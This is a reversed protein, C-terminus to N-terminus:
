APRAAPRRALELVVDDYVAQMDRAVADATRPAVIGTKLRAVLDPQEALRDLTRGWAAVSGHPTVLLGNVGDVIKDRLGGLSSGVVPVGAAFAELVVLPGTELWQSPVALVDYTALTALVAERALPPWFRIRPDAGALSALLGAYSAGEANQAVGFIDLRLHAARSARVARILVDTGKARDFRGLHAIRLARGAPRSAPQMHGRTPELTVGHAVDVIRAEPVGNVRLLQRVWPTLAIYRDALLFLRGTERRREDLLSPTRLATWLRGSWQRRGIAAGVPVPVQALARAVPRGVHASLVCEACPSDALAGACPDTGWRMLTGRQCSAAPTHYTFVVPIARARARAMLEVSCAPSVAHQHVIDPREEDLLREFAAVAIRDPRGYVVALEKPTTEFAFRRVRLGDVDGHEVPGPAAIVPTQGLARLGHGLAAVYVETGGVPDPPFAYVVHLSKM